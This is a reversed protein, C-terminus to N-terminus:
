HVSNNDSSDSKEAFSDASQKKKDKSELRLAKKVRSLFGDGDDLKETAEQGRKQRREDAFQLKKEAPINGLSPLQFERPVDFSNDLEKKQFQNIVLMTAELDKGNQSRVATWGLDKKEATSSKEAIPETQSKNDEISIKLKSIVQGQENTYDAVLSAVMVSALLVVKIIHM